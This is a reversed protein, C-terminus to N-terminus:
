ESVFSTEATKSSGNTFLAGTLPNTHKAALHSHVSINLAIRLSRNGKHIVWPIRSPSPPDQPHWDYHLSGAFRSSQHNLRRLINAIVFTLPKELLSSCLSSPCAKISDNSSTAAIGRAVWVGKFGMPNEYKCSNTSGQVGYEGMVGSHGRVYPNDPLWTPKLDCAAKTAAPESGSGFMLDSALERHLEGDGKSMGDRVPGADAGTKPGLADVDVAYGCLTELVTPALPWAPPVLGVVTTAPIGVIAIWDWCLWTWLRVERAAGCCQDCSWGCSRGPSTRKSEVGARIAASPCLSSSPLLSLRLPLTLRPFM